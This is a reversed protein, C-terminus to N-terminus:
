PTKTIQPNEPEPNLDQKMKKIDHYLCEHLFKATEVSEKHWIVAQLANSQREIILAMKRMFPEIMLSNKVADKIIEGLEIEIVGM